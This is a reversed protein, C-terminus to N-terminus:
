WTIKVILLQQWTIRVMRLTIVTNALMGQTYTSKKASTNVFLLLVTQAQHLQQEMLNQCCMRWDSQALM